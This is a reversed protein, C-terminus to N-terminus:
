RREEYMPVAGPWYHGSRDSRGRWRSCLPSLLRWSGLSEGVVYFEDGLEKEKYMVTAKTYRKIQPLYRHDVVAGSPVARVTFFDAFRDLQENGMHITFPTNKLHVVQVFLYSVTHVSFSFVKEAHADSSGCAGM